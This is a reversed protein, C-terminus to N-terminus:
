AHDSEEHPHNFSMGCNRCCFHLLRGLVGLLLGPGGCCPCFGEHELHGM